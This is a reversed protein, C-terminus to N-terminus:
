KFPDLNIRIEKKGLSLIITGGTMGGIPYFVIPYQGRTIENDSFPDIVQIRADPPFYKTAMGEIGYTRNDLDILVTRSEMNLRALSRAHRIMGTIERGTANIKASPLFGAFFVSSLGVILTILFLVLIVELLTFGNKKM